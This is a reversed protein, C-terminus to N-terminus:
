LKYEVIAFDMKKDSYIKFLKIVISELDVNKRSGLLLFTVPQLIHQSMPPKCAVRKVKYYSRIVTNRMAITLTDNFGSTSKCEEVYLRHL